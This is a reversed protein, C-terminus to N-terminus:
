SVLILTGSESSMRLTPAPSLSDETPRSVAAHSSAVTVAQGSDCVRPQHSMSTVNTHYILNCNYM